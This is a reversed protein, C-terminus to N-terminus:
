GGACCFATAAGVTFDGPVQKALQALHLRFNATTSGIEGTAAPINQALCALCCGSAVILANGPM